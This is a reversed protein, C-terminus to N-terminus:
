AQLKNWNKDNLASRIVSLLVDQTFPKTLYYYVGSASGEIVQQETSAATQMVVPIKNLVPSTQIRQMFEMGGMKPMMRDLLILDYDETRALKKLAEEGNQAFELEYGEEELMGILAEANLTDDEVILLKYGQTMAVEEYKKDAHEL